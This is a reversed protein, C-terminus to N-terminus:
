KLGALASTLQSQQSQLQSMLSELNAFRTRMQDAENEISKNAQAIQDNLSSIQTRNSNVTIDILGNFRIYQDITGGTISVTDAFNELLARVSSSETGIATTLKSSDFALTGDRQTSIGLDALIKVQSGSTYVSGAINARIASLLNEDVETNALPGFVNTVNTGDEQRQVTDKDAIFSVVDNYADIFDQIKSATSASDDGITITTASGTNELTLTVGPIIDSITNSNRTITDGAGAGIGTVKFTADTAASATNSDFANLATISAGVSISLAGKVTGPNNTNIVVRMDPSAATGVNVISATALTTASNFNTVFQALTTTNDVTLNFTAQDGVTVSVTDSAGLGSAILDSGDTKTYTTGSSKFGYTANKALQTPTITYTGNNAASSAVATIVTEDSSKATKSIGGNNLTAFVKIKSQLTSLKTKLQTFTDNTDTLEDVKDQKPQVLQTKRATTTADILANTDIGSALGAFNITPAAM